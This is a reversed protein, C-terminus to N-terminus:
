SARGELSRKFARLRASRARPNAQTEEGTPRVVKKTLRDGESRGSCWPNRSPPPCLCNKEAEIFFRKVIRDELSHYAITVMVGGPALRSLLVPLGRELSSLEQNVAIRLAQWVRALTKVRYRPDSAREVIRALEATTRLPAKERARVIADAIRRSRREEGFDRFIGALEDRSLHNVLDGAPIDADPGMRMDLEDDRMFSFGRDSELQISSMGFDAIIGDFYLDGEVLDALDAFNGPVLTVRDGFPALKRRALDLARPDRDIGTLRGDPSSRGLIAEAHSGGGVTCDLYTNGPRPDIYDLSEELLVPIHRTTHVDTVSSTGERTRQVAVGTQM